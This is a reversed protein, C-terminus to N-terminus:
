KLQSTTALPTCCPTGARLRTCINSQAGKALAQEPSSILDFDSNFVYLVM